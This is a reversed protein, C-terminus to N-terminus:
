LHSSTSKGLAAFNCLLSELFSSNCDIFYTDDALNQQKKAALEAKKDALSM